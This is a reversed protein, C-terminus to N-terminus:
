VRFDKRHTSAPNRILESIWVPRFATFPLPVTQSIAADLRRLTRCTRSPLRIRLSEPPEDVMVRILEASGSITIQDGGIVHFTNGGGPAIHKQEVTM